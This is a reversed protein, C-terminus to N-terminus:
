DQLTRIISFGDSTWTTTFGQGTFTVTGTQQDGFQSYSYLNEGIKELFVENVGFIYYLGNTDQIVASGPSFTITYTVFAEPDSSSTM